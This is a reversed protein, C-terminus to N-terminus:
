TQLTTYVGIYHTVEDLEDKIATIHLSESYDEGSKRKNVIKGLWEGNSNISEWMSVFFERPHANSKLLNAKFGVSEEVSYGTKTTFAKNVRLITGNNDTIMMSENSEFVIAAVRIESEAMKLPSIDTLAIRMMPADNEVQIRLCDLHAYFVSGDARIMELDHPVIKGEIQNMKSSFLHQWHAKAQRAVSTAFAQSISKTRNLGLLNCATLNIESIMAEHNLTIYSIPSLEYLHLYRDRAVEMAHHSDRLEENQMELEVKHVLLEHVLVENPQATLQNPSMSSIMSEAERRLKSRREIGDWKMNM